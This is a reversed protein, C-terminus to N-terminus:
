KKHKNVINGKYIQITKHRRPAHPLSKKMWTKQNPAELAHAFPTKMCFVGKCGLLQLLPVTGKAM